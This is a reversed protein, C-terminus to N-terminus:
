IGNTGNGEHIFSWFAMMFGTNRWTETMETEGWLIGSLHFLFSYVLVGDQQFGTELM